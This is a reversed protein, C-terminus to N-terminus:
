GEGFGIKVVRCDNYEAELKERLNFAALFQAYFVDAGRLRQGRVKIPYFVIVQYGKALKRFQIEVQKKSM